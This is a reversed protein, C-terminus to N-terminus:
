EDAVGGQAQLPGSVELGVIFSSGTVAKTFPNRCIIELPSKAILGSNGWYSGFHHLPAFASSALEDPANL